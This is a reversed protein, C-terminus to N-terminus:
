DGLRSSWEETRSQLCLREYAARNQTIWLMGQMDELDLPKEFRIGCGTADSWVVSAYVRLEHFALMAPTGPQLARDLRLRAGSVSIDDLLCPCTSHTLVLSASAGLRLRNGSRQGQIQARLNSQYFM